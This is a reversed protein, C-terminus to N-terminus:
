KVGGDIVELKPAAAATKEEATRKLEAIADDAQDSARAQQMRAVIAPKEQEIATVARQLHAKNHCVLTIPVGEVLLDAYACLGMKRIMKRAVGDVTPRRLLAAVEDSVMLGRAALRDEIVRDLSRRSWWAGVRFGLWIGLILLLTTILLPNM